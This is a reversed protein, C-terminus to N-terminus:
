VYKTQLKPYKGSVNPDLDVLILYYIWIEWM